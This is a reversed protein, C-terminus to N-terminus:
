AINKELKNGINNCYRRCQQLSDYGLMIGLIFDEEPTFLSLSKNGIERLVNVCDVNGFFVNIKRSTVNCTMYSIGCKELKKVIADRMDSTTTFLILDRLGKRYEYIHHNFVYLKHNNMLDENSERILCYFLRSSICNYNNHLSNRYARCIPFDGMEM